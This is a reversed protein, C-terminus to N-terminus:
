GAVILCNLNRYIGMNKIKGKYTNIDSRYLINVEKGLIYNQPVDYLKLTVNDFM